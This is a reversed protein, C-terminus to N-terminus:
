GFAGGCDVAAGLMTTGTGEPPACPSEPPGEGIVGGNCGGVEVYGMGVSSTMASHDDTLKGM